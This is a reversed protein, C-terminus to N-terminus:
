LRDPLVNKLPYQYSEVGDGHYLDPYKKYNKPLDQSYQKRYM